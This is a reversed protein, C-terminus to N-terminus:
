ISRAKAAVQAEPRRVNGKGTAYRKLKSLDVASWPLGALECALVAAGPM